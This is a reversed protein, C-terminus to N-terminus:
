PIRSVEHKIGYRKSYRNLNATQAKTPGGGKFQFHPTRGTTRAASFTAKAQNRWGSGPNYATSTTTQGIHTPSIADFERGLPDTNFKQSPEGGLQEALATEDASPVQGSPVPDGSYDLTDLFPPRGTVIPPAIDNPPKNHGQNPHQQKKGFVKKVNKSVSKVVKEVVKKVIPNQGDPDILNIPDNWAYAYRNFM